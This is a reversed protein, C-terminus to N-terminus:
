QEEQRRTFTSLRGISFQRTSEAWNAVDCMLSYGQHESQVQILVVVWDDHQPLSKENGM